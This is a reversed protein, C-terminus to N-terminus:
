TYVSVSYGTKDRHQKRTQQKTMDKSHQQRHLNLHFKYCVDHITLKDTMYDAHLFFAYKSQINLGQLYDYVFCHLFTFMTHCNIVDRGTYIRKRGM